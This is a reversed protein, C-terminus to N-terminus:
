ASRHSFVIRWSRLVPLLCRVLPGGAAVLSHTSTALEASRADDKSLYMAIMCGALIAHRRGHPLARTARMTEEVIAQLRAQTTEPDAYHAIYSHGNTAGDELQDAYSDLMATALAVSRLYVAYVREATMQTANPDAAQALLGHVALSGSVAAAVEFWALQRESPFYRRAWAELGSDRRLPDPIHNIALVEAARTTETTALQQVVAYSPLAEIGERCAAILARLYGADDHWPHLAYHDAIVTDSALANLLGAHLLEGSAQAAHLDPMASAGRESAYDLFDLMLEYAVLLRLLHPRRRKSLIWFLGAGDVHTRKRHFVRLADERLPASSAAQARARWRRMEKAATPLGWVLERMAALLLIWAM